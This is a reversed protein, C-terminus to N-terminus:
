AEVFYNEKLMQIMKDSLSYFGDNYNLWGSELRASTNWVPKGGNVFANLVGRETETVNHTCFNTYDEWSFPTFEDPNAAKQQMIINRLIIECETNRFVSGMFNKTSVQIPSIM